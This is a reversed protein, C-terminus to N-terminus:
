DSRLVGYGVLGALVAVGLAAGPVFELALAFLLLFNAALLVLAVDVHKQLASDTM